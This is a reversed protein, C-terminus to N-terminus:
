EPEFLTQDVFLIKKEVEAINAEWIRIEEEEQTKLQKIQQLTSRVDDVQKKLVDVVDLVQRYKDIKIFVPSKEEM